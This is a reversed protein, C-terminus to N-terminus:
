RRVSTARAAMLLGRAFRRWVRLLNLPLLRRPSALVVFSTWYIPNMTARTSFVSRVYSGVTPADVARIGSTSEDLVLRVNPTSKLEFGRRAARLTFEYDSLYHPLWFTHFRGIELFDSLRVFLGRTSFCNIDSASTAPVFSLSRWDVHAGVEKFAGTQLSHLQALLLTKATGSLASRGFSLFDPEFTTDDNAILVLDDSSCTQRQLWRRGQELSGAWWWRGAGRIVTASPILSRVMDSTGDRSGDDILVLHFRQDTQTVLCRVFRETIARRNHVPVLVYITGAADHAPTL